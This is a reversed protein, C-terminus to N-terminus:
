GNIAVIPADISIDGDGEMAVSAGNIEVSGEGEITVSAASISLEGTAELSLDGEAIIAIDTGSIEINGEMNYISILQEEADLFIGEIEDGTQIMIGSQEESDYFTVNHLFSSSIRRETVLGTGEDIFEPSAGPELVPSYLGGLVYPRNPDGMEFAVLVETGIEPVFLSGFGEGVGFHTCRVWNSLVPEDGMWSFLLQVRGEEEPDRTDAVTASVVGPIRFPEHVGAGGSVSGSQNGSSLSYLTRDQWGSVSFQTVYGHEADFIHRAMTITYGGDFITGAGTLNIPVGAKLVPNGVTEGDIGIYSEAIENGIAAAKTEAADENDTPYWLHTFSNAGAITALEEPQPTIETGIVEAPSAGVVPEGTIPSWGMVQVDEVQENSRVVARLRMIDQGVVIQTPTSVEFTGPVDGSVPPDLPAFNFFGDVMWARYGNDAALKQIFQWDTIGAQVIYQILNDTAVVEGPEVGNEALIATVIESALMDQFFRTKKGRQLMHSFDLGRITTKSGDTDYEFEIATIEGVTLPLTEEEGANAVIAVEMGVVFGGLEVIDTAPDNAGPNIFCLEFVDPLYMSTEVSVRILQDTIMPDLPTGGDLLITVSSTWHTEM